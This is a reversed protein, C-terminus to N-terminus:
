LRGGRGETVLKGDDLPLMAWAEHRDSRRRTCMRVVVAAFILVFIVLGIQPYISLGAASMFESLRM